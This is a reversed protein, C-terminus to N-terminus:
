RFERLEHRESVWRSHQAIDYPRTSVAAIPVGRPGLARIVGLGNIHAGVVVAGPSM